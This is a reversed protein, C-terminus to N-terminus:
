RLADVVSRALPFAASPDPASACRGRYDDANLSYIMAGRLKNDKVFAAKDMVSRPSDYSLWESGRYLYPVRSEVDFRLTVDRAHEARYDCVLPYDVFGGGGLDGFGAAPSGVGPNEANVLKFSHGYTPIGVVIKNRHLGKSQYMHITYNINFTAMFLEETSRAYLPSNFGTFPTFKTYYHFDYTMINAFDVYLNVQDVDYAVDVITQPAALAVSLIYDKKERMYEMRIERLLQSFHQRERAAVGVGQYHLVPFEWDLDIGDLNYDKLIKKISRIFIKRSAHNIVMDSFGNNESAGGVSLLVKLGPNQQKLKVVERLTDYQSPELHISKNYLRAFAVNIHTCLHPQIQAPLLQQSSNGSPTNYYCSIVQNPASARSASAVVASGFRYSMVQVFQSMSISIAVVTTLGIVAIVWPWLKQSHSIKRSTSHHDVNSNTIERKRDGQNEYLKYLLLKM